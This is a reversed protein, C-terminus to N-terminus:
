NNIKDIYTKIFRLLKFIQFLDNQTSVYADSVAYTKEKLVVFYWNRALVYCGYIPRENQNLAQVALMESLLQGKPDGDRNNEQKYEHICFYPSEPNQFGNAVFMDVKGFLRINNVEVSIPRDFFTRYKQGEFNVLEILPSIFKMKLEEENWYDIKSVANLRMEELRQKETDNMPEDSSLWDNLLTSNFDRDIGFQNHLEQTLWYKFSKSKM